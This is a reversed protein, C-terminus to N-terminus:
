LSSVAQKLFNILKVTITINAATNRVIKNNTSRKVDSFYALFAKRMQIM